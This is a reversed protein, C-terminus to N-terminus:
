KKGQKRYKIAVGKVISYKYIYDLSEDYSVSIQKNNDWHVDILDDQKYLDNESDKVYFHFLSNDSYAEQEEVESITKQESLKTISGEFELGSLSRCDKKILILKLKKDPSYYQKWLESECSAELLKLGVLSVITGVVLPLLIIGLNIKAGTKFINGM